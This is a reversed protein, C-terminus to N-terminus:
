YGPLEAKLEEPIVEDPLPMNYALFRILTELETNSLQLQPHPPFSYASRWGEVDRDEKLPPGIPHCLSCKELMLIRGSQPLKSCKMKKPNKPVKIKKAPANYALYAALTKVEKETMGELAGKKSQFYAKWEEESKKSKMITELETWGDCNEMAELLLMCGGKPFWDFHGGGAIVTGFFLMLGMVVFISVTRAKVIMEKAEV